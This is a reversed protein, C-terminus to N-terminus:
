VLAMRFDIKCTMLRHYRGAAKKISMEMNNQLEHHEDAKRM